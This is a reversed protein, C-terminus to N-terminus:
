QIEERGLLFAKKNIDVFAPKVSKEIIALWQDAGFPLSKSLAGMLVTNAAKISGAERALRDADVFTAHGVTKDM